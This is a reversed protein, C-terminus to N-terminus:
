RGGRRCRGCGATWCSCRRRRWRRVSRRPVRRGRDPARQHLRLRDGRHPRLRQDGGQGHAWQDVVEPPCAEGGVAAGCGVELRRPHCHASCASPTQSLVTVSEAVLLAHFDDPSATVSEPVVVLARWALLAAWIEWVSFDFSYSHCQTWVQALPLELRRRALEVAPDRQSSHGGRRQPCRHHRLHLDHLRTTPRAAGTVPHRIPHGIAPDDVDIVPLDYGDLRSRLEATTIAAIPAADALM